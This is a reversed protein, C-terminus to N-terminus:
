NTPPQPPTPLPPWPTADTVKWPTVQGPPPPELALLEDCRIGRAFREDGNIKCLITAVIEWRREEAQHKTALYERVSKIESRIATTDETIKAAQEKTMGSGGFMANIGAGGGIASIAATLLMALLQGHAQPKPVPEQQHRAIEEESPAELRPASARKAPPAPLPPLKAGPVGPVGRPPPFTDEADPHRREEDDTM